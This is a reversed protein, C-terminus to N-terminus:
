SAGGANLKIRTELQEPTLGEGWVRVTYTGAPLGSITFTGDKAPTTFFKNPLVLIYASMEKHVNCTLHVVGLDSFTKPQSQMKPLVADNFLVKKEGRAYINHLEPDESKFVVQTGAVIPLLHPTYVNGRQNMLVPTKPPTVQGDVKEVYVLQVKRRLAPDELKGIISQAHVASQAALLMPIAILLQRLM